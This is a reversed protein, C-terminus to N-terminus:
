LAQDGAKCRELEVDDRDLALALFHANEGEQTVLRQAGVRGKEIEARAMDLHEGGIAGAVPVLRAREDRAAFAEIGLQRREVIEIARANRSELARGGALGALGRREIKRGSGLRARGPRDACRLRSRCPSPSGPAPSRPRSRRCRRRANCWRWCRRTSCRMAPAASSIRARSAAKGISFSRSWRSAR